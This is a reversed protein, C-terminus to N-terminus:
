EDKEPSMVEKKRRDRRKRKKGSECGKSPEQEPYERGV